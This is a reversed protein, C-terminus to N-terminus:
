RHSAATSPGLELAACPDSRKGICSRPFVANIQVDADDIHAVSARATRDASVVNWGDVVPLVLKRRVRRDTALHTWDRARVRGDFRGYARASTSSFLTVAM